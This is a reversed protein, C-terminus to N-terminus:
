QVNESIRMDYGKWVWICYVLISFSLAFFTMNRNYRTFHPRLKSCNECINNVENIWRDSKIRSIMPVLSYRWGSHTVCISSIRSAKFPENSFLNIVNWHKTKRSHMILIYHIELFNFWFKCGCRYAICVKLNMKLNRFSGM